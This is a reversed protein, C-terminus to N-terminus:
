RLGSRQRCGQCFGKCASEGDPRPRGRRCCSQFIKSAHEYQAVIAQLLKGAQNLPFRALHAPHVAVRTLFWAQSALAQSTQKWECTGRSSFRCRNEMSSFIRSACAQSFPDESYGSRIAAQEDAFDEGPPLGAPLSVGMSSEGLPLGGFTRGPQM